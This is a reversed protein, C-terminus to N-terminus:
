KKWARLMHRKGPPGPLREITFGVKTLANKVIGKVCYTVLIGNQHMADFIKKFQKEEWMEPQDNPAFADFYVLHFKSVPQWSTFDVNLKTLNFGNGVDVKENWPTQCITEWSEAAFPPLILNYNLSRYDDTSLPYLELAVYDVAMGATKAFNATLAANLGTGFGVELVNIEKLHIAKLGAEIFIHNSETIAGNLSHYHVGYKSSCLTSSGDATTLPNVQAFKM